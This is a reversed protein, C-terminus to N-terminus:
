QFLLMKFLRWAKFEYIGSFAAYLYQTGVSDAYLYRPRSLEVIRFKYMSRAILRFLNVHLVFLNCNYM